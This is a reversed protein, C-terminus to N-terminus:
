ALNYIVIYMKEIVAATKPLTEARYNSPGVIM